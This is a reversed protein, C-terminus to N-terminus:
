GTPKDPVSQPERRATDTRGTINNASARLQPESRIRRRRDSMDAASTLRELVEALDVGLPPWRRRRRPPGRPFAVATSGGRPRTRARPDAVGALVRNPNTPSPRFPSPRLQRSPAALKLMDADHLDAFFRIPLEVTRGCRNAPPFASEDFSAEPVLRASTRGPRRRRGACEALWRSTDFGLAPHTQHDRAAAACLPWRGRASDSADPARATRIIPALGIVEPDHQADPPIRGTASARRAGLGSARDRDAVMRARRSGCGVTTSPTSGTPTAVTRGNGNESSCDQPRPRGAAPPVTFRTTSVEEHAAMTATVVLRDAGFRVPGTHVGLGGYWFLLVSASRAAHSKTAVSGAACSNSSTATLGPM